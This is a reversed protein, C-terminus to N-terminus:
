TWYKLLADFQTSLEAKFADLRKMDAELSSDDKRGLISKLDRCLELEGGTLDQEDQTGLLASMEHFDMTGVHSHLIQRVKRRAMIKALKEESTM